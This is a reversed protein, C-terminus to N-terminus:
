DTPMITVHYQALDVRAKKSLQLHNTGLGHVGTTGTRQGKCQGLAAWQGRMGRCRGGARGVAELGRGRRRPGDRTLVRCQGLLWQAAQEGCGWADRGGVGVLEEAVDAWGGRTDAAQQEDIEELREDEKKKETSNAQRSM